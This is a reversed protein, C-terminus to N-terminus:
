VAGSGVVVMMVAVLLVVAMFVMSVMSVMFVMFVMSVMLVMMVMMVAMMVFMVAFRVIAVIMMFDMVIAVMAIVISMAGLADQTVHVAVFSANQFLRTVEVADGDDPEVGDDAATEHDAVRGIVAHHRTTLDPPTAPFVEAVRLDGPELSLCLLDSAVGAVLNASKYCL